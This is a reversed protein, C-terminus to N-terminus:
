THSTLSVLRDMQRRTPMTKGGPVLSVSFSSLGTVLDRLLWRLDRAGAAPIKDSVDAVLRREAAMKPHRSAPQRSGIKQDPAPGHALLAQFGKGIADEGDHDRKENEVHM